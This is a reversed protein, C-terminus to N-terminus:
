SGGLSNARRPLSSAAATLKLPHVKGMRTVLSNFPNKSETQSHSTLYNSELNIENKLTEEKGRPYVQASVHSLSFQAQHTRISCLLDSTSGSVSGLPRQAKLFVRSSWRWPSPDPDLCM